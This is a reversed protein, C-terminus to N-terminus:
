TIVVVKSNGRVEVRVVSFTVDGLALTGGSYLHATNPKVESHVTFVGTQSDWATVIAPLTPAQGKAGPALNGQILGKTRVYTAGNGVLSVGLAPTACGGSSQLAPASGLCLTGNEFRGNDVGAGNSNDLNPSEDVLAVGPEPALVVDLPFSATASTTKIATAEGKI